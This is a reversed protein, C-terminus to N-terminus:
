NGTNSKSSNYNIRPTNECKKLKSDWSQGAPCFPAVIAGTNSKSANYNISQPKECLKAKVDFFEGKPCLQGAVVTNSHSANYTKAAEAAGSSGAVAIGMAVLLLSIRVM